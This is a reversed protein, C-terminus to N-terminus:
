RIAIFREDRLLAGSGLQLARVFPNDPHRRLSRRVSEASHNSRWSVFARPGFYRLALSHRQVSPPCPGGGHLVAPHFAIVDGPETDFSLIHEGGGSARQADTRRAEIDPVAPGRHAGHASTFPSADAAFFRRHSGAVFELTQPRDPRLARSTPEFTIWLTCLDPGAIPM